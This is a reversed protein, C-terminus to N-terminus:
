QKPRLGPALRDLTDRMTAPDVPGNKGATAAKQKLEDMSPRGSPPGTEKAQSTLQRHAEQCATLLVKRNLSAKREDMSKLATAIVRWGYGPGFGSAGYNVKVVAAAFVHPRACARMIAQFVLVEPNGLKQMEHLAIEVSKTALEQDSMASIGGELDEVAGSHEKVVTTVAVAVSTSGHEGIGSDTASSDTKGDPPPLDAVPQPMPSKDGWRREASHRGGAAQKQRLILRRNRVREMKANAVRGPAVVVPFKPKLKEWLRLARNKRIGGMIDSYERLVTVTSHGYQSSIDPVSGHLWQHDLLARYAGQEELTYGERQIDALWDRVYWPYNGGAALYPENEKPPM